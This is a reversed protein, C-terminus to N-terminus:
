KDEKRNNWREAFENLIAQGEETIIIAGTRTDYKYSVEKYSQIPSAGCRSCNLTTNFLFLNDKRRWEKYSFLPESDCFPCHKLELSM